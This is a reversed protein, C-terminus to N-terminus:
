ARKPPNENESFESSDEDKKLKKKGVGPKALKSIEVVDKKIDEPSSRIRKDNM